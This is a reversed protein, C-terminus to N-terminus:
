LNLERIYKKMDEVAKPNNKFKESWYRPRIITELIIQQENSLKSVFFKRFKSSHLMLWPSLRRQRFLQIVENSELFDFLDPVEVDAADAVKYLTTVTLKAQNYPSARRDLFEIYQSYVQDNTWITPDIDKEKMLWIFANTDPIQTKQVFKAFKVFSVYKKSNLFSKIPPVMRRYAKMWKQYYSWAAQGIPTKIEEARIMKKCRHALFRSEIVFGRHCFKCQFDKYGM